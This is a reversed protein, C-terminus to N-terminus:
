SLDDEGALDLLELLLLSISEELISLLVGLPEGSVKILSSGSSSTNYYSVPESPMRTGEVIQMATHYTKTTKSM